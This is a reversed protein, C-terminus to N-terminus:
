FPIEDGLDDQIAKKATEFNPKYNDIEIKGAMMTSSKSWLAIKMKKGDILATGTWDPHTEKEKRKNEFIAIDNDKQQYPM